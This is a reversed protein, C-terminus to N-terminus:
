PVVPRRPSACAFPRGWCRADKHYGTQGYLAQQLPDARDERKQDHEGGDGPVGGKAVVAREDVSILAIANPWVPDSSPM